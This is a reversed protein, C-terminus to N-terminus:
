RGLANRGKAFMEKPLVWIATLAVGPVIILIRLVLGSQEGVMGIWLGVGLLVLGALISRFGLFSWAKWPTRGRSGVVSIVVAVAVAILTATAAGELGWVPVLVINGVLNLAAALLSNCLQFLVRGDLLYPVDLWCTKWFWLGITIAVLAGVTSDVKQYAPNAILALIDTGVALMVPITFVTWCWLLRVARAAPESAANFGGTGYATRILPFAALSILLMGGGVIQRSLDTYAAFSSVVASGMYHAVVVRDTATLIQDFSLALALPTGYVLFKKTLPMSSLGHPPISIVRREFWERAGILVSIANAFGLAILPALASPNLRSFAVALALWLTSRAVVMIGYAKPALRARHFELTLQAAGESVILVTVVVMALPHGRFLPFLVIVPIVLCASVLALRESLRLLRAVGLADRSDYHRQLAVRIWGFSISAITIAVSFFVIYQGYVEEPLIRTLLVINLIAVVAPAIRASTYILLHKYV